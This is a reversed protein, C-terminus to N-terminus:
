TQREIYIHAALNSQKVAVNVTLSCPVKEFKTMHLRLRVFHPGSPWGNPSIDCRRWTNKSCWHMTDAACINQYTELRTVHLANDFNVTVKAVNFREECNHINCCRRAHRQVDAQHVAYNSGQIMPAFEYLRLTCGLCKSRGHTCPELSKILPRQQHFNYSCLDPGM